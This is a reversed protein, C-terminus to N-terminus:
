GLGAEVELEPRKIVYLVGQHHSIIFLQLAPIVKHYCIKSILLTSEM